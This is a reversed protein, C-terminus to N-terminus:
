QAREVAKRRFSRLGQVTCARKDAQEILSYTEFNQFYLIKGVPPGQIIIVYTGTHLWKKM